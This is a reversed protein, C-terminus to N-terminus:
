FTGTLMLGNLDSSTMPALNVTFHSRKDQQNAARPRGAWYTKNQRTLKDSTIRHGLLLPPLLLSGVFFHWHANSYTQSAAPNAMRVVDAQLSVATATRSAGIYSTVFGAITIPVGVGAMHVGPLRRDTQELYVGGISLPIGVLSVILGIRSLRNGSKIQKATRSYMAELERMRAQDSVAVEQTSAELAPTPTGEEAAAPLSLALGLALICPKPM